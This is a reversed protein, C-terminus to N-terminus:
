TEPAQEIAQSEVVAPNLATIAAQLQNDEQDSLTLRDLKWRLEGPMVLETNPQIGIGTFIESKPTLYHAVAIMVASGDSLPYVQEKVGNGATTEGIVTGKQYDKIASAVLEAAGSTNQNTLVTLPYQFQNSDSTYLVQETGSKDVASVLTGEPVLRDLVSAAYEADGKSCNRLDIIFNEVGNAKLDSVATDFSVPTQNTFAFIRICGIKEGVIRWDAVQEQYKGHTAEVDVRQKLGANEAGEPIVRMIGLNVKTGSEGYLKEAATEYGITEVEESDISVIVDGKQVGAKQAPSNDSVAIVEMNGDQDIITRVGIGLAKGSQRLQYMKYQDATLYRAYTDSLGSIYGKCIGERLKEEDISESYNQRVTQDIDSLKSYMSQRENVEAVVQNFRNMAINYSVTYTAAATVAVLAISGCILKWKKNMMLPISNLCYLFVTKTVRM